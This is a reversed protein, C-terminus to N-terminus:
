DKSTKMVQFLEMGEQIASSPCKNILIGDFNAIVPLKYKSSDESELNHFQYISGLCDGQKFHKGLEVEYDILGSHPSYITIYNSLHAKTYPKATSKGPILKKYIFYNLIKKTQLKAMSLSFGEESELELTFSHFNFNIKRGLREFTNELHVWPIFTAEDMAGAFDHDVELVHKFHLHKVEEISRSASYLYETASPGTHLDLVIDASSSIKQLIINLKNNDHLENCKTLKMELKKFEKQLLLQFKERIFEESDKLYRRCFPTLNIQEHKILDIFNRNWNDGTNPNFRGFTYKGLKNNTAYPNSLPILVVTGRLESQKLEEILSLIVANGQLEGGHLSAQIYVKPGPLSGTITYKYLFYQAGGILEKLPIKEKKLKNM